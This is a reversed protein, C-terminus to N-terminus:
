CNSTPARLDPAAQAINSRRLTTARDILIAFASSPARLSYRLIEALLGMDHLCRRENLFQQRFLDPRSRAAVSSCISSAMRSHRIIHHLQDRLPVGSSTLAFTRSYTAL